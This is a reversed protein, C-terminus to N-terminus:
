KNAFSLCKPDIEDLKIVITQGNNEESWKISEGDLLKTVLRKRRAAKTDEVGTGVIVKLYQITPIGSLSTLHLRLLRMAEKPEYEHLDLSMEEERAELFKQTSKEDAECAKIKFFHGEELLKHARAHEGKGFADVAAKYYEKMIMWYEKVAKRLVQYSDNDDENENGTVLLKAVTTNCETAAESLPEVVVRSSGRSVRFGKAPITRKPAEESRAPVNFLAELVERQLDYRDKNRNPSKNRPMLRDKSRSSNVYQPKKDFSLCEPDTPKQTDMCLVDDSKKLTSASLDLLKEMSKKIDYGCCGLVDQIVKRDFQCGDGLMKFLFEEIDECMREVSARANSSVQEGWIESVPFDESNLKLPKSVKSVENASPRARAYERGIVSSVTGMSASYNKSRSTIFNREAFRSKDSLNDGSWESPKSLHEPEDKSAHTSASSTSGQIKCLIEGATDLHRGAQCYAHAIDKLSVVSGFADLLQELDRQEDDGHSISSTLAEM